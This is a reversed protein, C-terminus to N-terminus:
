LKRIAVFYDAYAERWKTVDFRAVNATGRTTLDNARLTDDLIHALADAMAEIDTVDFMAASTGAIEALSGANSCVVPTGCMQAELVPYGFGEYLSPFLLASASSYLASMDAAAVHDLYSVRDSIGLRSIKDNLAQNPSSVFMLHVDSRRKCLRAFVDIVGARNKYFDRGINLILSKSQPLRNAALFDNIEAESARHLDQFLANPIVHIKNPEVGALNVLDRRTSHSVAVISDSQHFRAILNRMLLTGLRTPNFGELRGAEALYPIMDHVTVSRKEARVLPFYVASGPDVAHLIGAQRGIIKLPTLLFRDLNDGLKGTGNLRDTMQFEHCNFGAATMERMLLKGYGIM